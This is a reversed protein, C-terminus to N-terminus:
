NCAVEDLLRGAMVDWLGTALVFSTREKRFDFFPCIQNTALMSWHPLSFNNPLISLSICWHCIPCRKFGHLKFSTKM